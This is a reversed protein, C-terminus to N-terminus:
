WDIPIPDLSSSRIRKVRLHIKDEGLSMVWAIPILKAQKLLLGSAVLLHTIQDVTPDILIREVHGISKGESTVVTAGEKMAVTGDPINREIRTSSEEDSLSKIPSSLIPYGVLPSEDDVVTTESEAPVPKREEFPPCGQLVGAEERLVIHGDATEDVLEVPVVKEERNSRDGTSVIIDTLVHTETNVVVREISGVPKGEASLITANRHFQTKADLMYTM